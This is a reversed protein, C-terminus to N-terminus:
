SMPNIAYGFCDSGIDRADRKTGTWPNFLWTVTGHYIRWQEAHSPYPRPSNDEPSFHMPQNQNPEILM